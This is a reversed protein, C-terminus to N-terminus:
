KKHTAALLELLRLFFNLFDLYISMTLQIAREWTNESHGLRFFDFLFYGAFIIMGLISFLIDSQRSRLAAVFWGLVGVIILGFLGIMLYTGLGSFDIGSFMGILGCVAMVGSTGLFAGAVTKWSLEEAYAEIAPGVFLGSVFTWAGLALVGITPDAATSAFYVGITGGIFAIALVIFAAVSRIGRGIYAGFAGSLMSMCLLVAVKSFITDM